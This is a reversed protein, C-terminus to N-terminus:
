GLTASELQQEVLEAHGVVDLEIVARDVAEHVVGTVRYQRLHETRDHREGLIRGGGLVGPSADKREEILM